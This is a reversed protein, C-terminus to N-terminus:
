TAREVRRRAQVQRSRAGEGTPHAEINGAAELVAHEISVVPTRQQLPTPPPPTISTTDNHPTITTLKNHRDDNNKHKRPDTTEVNCLMWRLLSPRVVCLGRSLLLRSAHRWLLEDSAPRNEHKTNFEDITGGAYVWGCFVM